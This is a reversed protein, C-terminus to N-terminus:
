FNKLFEDIVKKLREHRYRITREPIDNLFEHVGADSIGENDLLIRIIRKDTDDQQNLLELLAKTKVEEDYLENPTKTEKDEIDHEMEDGDNDLFTADLSVPNGTRHYDVQDDPHKPDWLYPCYRCDKYTCKKPEYRIGKKKPAVTFNGRTGDPPIIYNGPIVCRSELDKEVQEKRYENRWFYAEEFTELPLWRKDGDITFPACPVEIGNENGPIATASPYGYLWTKSNKESLPIQRIEKM